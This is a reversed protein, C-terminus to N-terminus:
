HNDTPDIKPAASDITTQSRTSSRETLTMTPARQDQDPQPYVRRSRVLHARRQPQPTPHTALRLRTQATLDPRRMRHAMQDGRHVTRRTRNRRPSQVAQRHSWVTDNAATPLAVNLEDILEPCCRRTIKHIPSEHPVRAELGIRCFRSALSSLLQIVPLLRIMSPPM